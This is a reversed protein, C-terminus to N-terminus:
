PAEAPRALPGLRAALTPVLLPLASVLLVYAPYAPLLERFFEGEDFTVDTRSGRLAVYAAVWVGLASALPVSRRAVAVAGAIPLWQLVRQSWFYERLGAMNAQFADVSLDPLPLRTLWVVALGAVCLLAGAASRRTGLAVLALALLLVAGEVYGADRTLGVALPLVHDRVTADYSSLAFAPVLWPVTVFVVMTWAALARGAVRAAVAYAAALELPAVVLVNALVRADLEVEAARLGVWLTTLWHLAVAAPLVLQPRLLREARRM